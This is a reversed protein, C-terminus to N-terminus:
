DSFGYQQGQNQQAQFPYFLENLIKNVMTQSSYVDIEIFYKLKIVWSLDNLRWPGAFHFLTWMFIWSTLKTTYPTNKLSNNLNILLAIFSKNVSKTPWHLFIHVKAKEASVERRDTLVSFAASLINRCQGGVWNILTYYQVEMSPESSLMVWSIVLVVHWFTTQQVMRRSLLNDCFNSTNRM